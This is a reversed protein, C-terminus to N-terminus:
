QVCRGRHFFRSICNIITRFLWPVSKGYFLVCLALFLLGLGIFALGTGIAMIGDLPHSFLVVIGVPIMVTGTVLMAITMIGTLALVAILIGGAGVMLGLIGGGVGILFPSAAIILIIWLIVKLLRSTRPPLKQTNKQHQGEQESFSQQGHAPGVANEPLDYRRALQYNPDKFREDQYGSETFEGGQELHGAIDCRIMSAIREPSGLERIIDEEKEPGAEDFYDRYYQLADEKDEDQIDQLLYELQNIYQDRTM